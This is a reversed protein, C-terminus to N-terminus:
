RSTLEQSVLPLHSRHKVEPGQALWGRREGNQGNKKGLLLFIAKSRERPNVPGITVRVVGDACGQFGLVKEQNIDLFVM